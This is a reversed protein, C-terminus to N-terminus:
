GLLLGALLALPATIAATAIRLQVAGSGDVATSSCHYMSQTEWKVDTINAVIPEFFRDLAACDLPLDSEIRVVVFGEINPLSLQEIAGFFGLFQPWSELPLSINLPTTSKITIRSETNRLSPMDIRAIAGDIELKLGVSSLAPFSLSAPSEPLTLMACDSVTELKPASISATKGSVVFRDVKELSALSINLPHNTTNNGHDIDLLGTVNRLGPVEIRSYNGKFVLYDVDRLAPFHAESEEPVQMVWVGKAIELKPASVNVLGASFMLDLSNIYKLDPLSVQTVQVQRNAISEQEWFVAKLSGTINQVNRLVFPGTYTKNLRLDGVITTCDRGIIDLHEQASIVLPGECTQNQAQSLVPLSVAAFAAGLRIFKRIQM